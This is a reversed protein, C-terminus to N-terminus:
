LRDACLLDILSYTPFVIFRHFACYISKRTGQVGDKEVCHM